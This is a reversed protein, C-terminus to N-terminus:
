PAFSMDSCLVSQKLLLVSVTQGRVIDKGLILTAKEYSSILNLGCYSCFCLIASLFSCFVSSKGSVGWGWGLGWGIM